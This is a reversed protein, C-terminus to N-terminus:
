GFTNARLFSFVINNGNEIKNKAIELDNKEKDLSNM